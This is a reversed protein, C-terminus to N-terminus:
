CSGFLISHRGVHKWCGTGDAVDLGWFRPSSTPQWVFRLETFGRVRAREQFGEHVVPFRFFCAPQRSLCNLQPTENGKGKTLCKRRCTHALMCLAFPMWCIRHDKVRLDRCVLFITDPAFGVVGFVWYRITCYVLGIPPGLVLRLRASLM